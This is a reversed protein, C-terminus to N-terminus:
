RIVQDPKKVLFHKYFTVVPSDIPPMLLLSGVVGVAVGVWYGTQKGYITGTPVAVSTVDLGFWESYVTPKWVLVMLCILSVVLVAVYGKYLNSM